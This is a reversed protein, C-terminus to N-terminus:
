YRRKAALNIGVIGGFAGSLIGISLLVFIYSSFRFSGATLLSVVYLVLAYVAGVLAGNVYGRKGTCRAYLAGAVATSLVITIIVTFPISEEKLGTYTLLLSCVLFILLTLGFAVLLAKVFGSLLKGAGDTEKAQKYARTNMFLGGLM